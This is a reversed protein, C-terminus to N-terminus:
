AHQQTKLSWGSLWEPQARAPGQFSCLQGVLRTIVASARAKARPPTIVTLISLAYPPHRPVLLRLLAHVAAFLRPSDSFLSQGTSERIPFGPAPLAADDRDSDM